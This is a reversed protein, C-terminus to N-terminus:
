RPVSPVAAMFEGRTDGYLVIGIIPDSAKVRINGGVREYDADNLFQSLLGVSQEYPELIFEVSRDVSGDAGIVDLKVTVSRNLDNMLALGTWYEISGASGQAIQNFRFSPALYGALPYTATQSRVGDTWYVSLDGAIKGADSRLRVYGTTLRDGWALMTSSLSFTAQGGPALNRQFTDLLTGNKDYLDLYVAAAAGDLKAVRATTEWQGGGAGGSIFYPAVLILGATEASIAYSTALSGFQDHYTALGVVESCSASKLSNSNNCTVRLSVGQSPDSPRMFNSGSGIYFNRAGYGAIFFEPEERLVSGEKDLLELRVMVDDYALNLLTIETSEGVRPRLDPFVIKGSGGEAATNGDLATGDVSSDLYMAQVDGEHSYVEVWGEESDGFVPGRDNVGRFIEGPYAAFQLGSAFRYSVPNIVGTGTVLAGDSHRAIYTISIENDNPNTVAIGTNNTVRPLLAKGKPRPVLSYPNAFFSEVSRDRDFLVSNIAGTTEDTLDYEADGAAFQSDSLRGEDFTWYMRLRNSGYSLITPYMGGGGVQFNLGDYWAYAMPYCYVCSDVYGKALDRKGEPLRLDGLLFSGRSDMYGDIVARGNKDYFTLQGSQYGFFGMGVLTGKPDLINLEVNHNKRIVGGIRARLLQRGQADRVSRSILNINIDGVNLGWAPDAISATFSFTVLINFFLANERMIQNFETESEDLLRLPEPRSAAILLSSSLIAGLLAIMAKRFRRATCDSTAAAKM